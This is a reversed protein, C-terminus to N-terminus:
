PCAQALAQAAGTLPAAFIPTGIANFLQVTGGTAMAQLIPGAPTMAAYYVWGQDRFPLAFAATQDIQLTLTAGPGETGSLAIYRPGGGAACIAWLQTGMRRDMAGAALGKGDVTRTVSWTPVTQPAAAICRAEVCSNYEPRDAPGFEALCRWVCRQEEMAEESFASQAQVSVSSLVLVAVAAWEGRLM